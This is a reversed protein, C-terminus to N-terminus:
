GKMLERAQGIWDDRDIRDKFFALLTSFERINEEKWAMIQKFTYVGYDNLQKELVEAIGYIRKLDDRSEPTQVFVVGRSEHLRTRGGYEEDYERGFPASLIVPEPRAQKLEGIEDRLLKLKHRLGDVETFAQDRQSILMNLRVQIDDRRHISSLRSEAMARESDALEGALGDREQRLQQIETLRQQNSSEGRM